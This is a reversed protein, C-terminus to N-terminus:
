TMIQTEFITVFQWSHRLFVDMGAGLVLVEAEVVEDVVEEAKPESNGNNIPVWFVLQSIDCIYLVDMKHLFSLSSFQFTQINESLKCKFMFHPCLDTYITHCEVVRGLLKYSRRKQTGGRDGQGVEGGAGALWNEDVNVM